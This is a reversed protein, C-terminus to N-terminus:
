AFDGSARHAPENRPGGAGKGVSPWVHSGDGRDGHQQEGRGDKGCRGAGAFQAIELVGSQVGDLEDILGFAPRDAIVPDDPVGDVGALNPLAHGAADARRQARDAEEIGIEAPDGATFLQGFAAAGAYQEARLVAAHGPLADQGVYQGAQVRHAERVFLGAIKEAVTRVLIRAAQKGGGVAAASPLGHRPRAYRRPQGAVKAVALASRQGPAHFRRPVTRLPLAKM